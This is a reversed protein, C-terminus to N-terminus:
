KDKNYEEIMIDMSKKNNEQTKKMVEYVPSEKTIWSCVGDFIDGNNEHEKIDQLTNKIAKEIAAFLLEEYGHSALESYTFNYVMEIKPNSLLQIMPDLTPFQEDVTNKMGEFSVNELKDINDLTTKENVISMCTNFCIPYNDNIYQKNKNFFDLFLDPKDKYIQEIMKSLYSESIDENDNVAKELIDVDIDILECILELTNEADTDFDKELVKILKYTLTNSSNILESLPVNLSKAINTLIDFSPNKKKGNELMTIYAPSVNIKRALESKTIKAKERLLAIKNGISNM